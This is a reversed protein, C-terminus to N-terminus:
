FGAHMSAQRLLTTSALDSAVSSDAAEAQGSVTSTSPGTSCPLGYSPDSPNGQPVAHCLNLRNSTRPSAPSRGFQARVIARGKSHPLPPITPNSWNLTSLKKAQTLRTSQKRIDAHHSMAYHPGLSVNVSPERLTLTQALREQAKLACTKIPRVSHWSNNTTHRVLQRLCARPRSAEALSRM